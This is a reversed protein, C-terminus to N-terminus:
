QDPQMAAMAEASSLPKGDASLFTGSAVKIPCPGIITEDMESWDSVSVAQGGMSESLTEFRLRTTSGVRSIELRYIIKSTVGGITRTCARDRRVVRGPLSTRTAVCGSDALSSGAPKFKPYSVDSVCTRLVIPSPHRSSTMNTLFMTTGNVSPNPVVPAAPYPRCAALSAVGLAWVLWADRRHRSLSPATEVSVRRDSM